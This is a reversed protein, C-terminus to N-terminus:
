ESINVRKNNKYNLKKTRSPWFVQVSHAIQPSYMCRDCFLEIELGHKSQMDWLRCELSLADIRYTIDPYMMDSCVPFLGSLPAHFSSFNLSFYSSHLKELRQWYPKPDLANSGTEPVLLALIEVFVCGLSFVDSKRNRPENNAVEPACYRKTCSESLGTTTTNQGTADLAIGFDTYIMQGKHVLINQPKVDKHRITHCHIYALGSALCGFARLLVARQEPSPDEGTDQIGLLYSSLDKDSAVPTLLMGLERGCTYSWYIQVVHPHSRLRRLISVENRFAEKFFKSHGSYPRFVKHAFRRRNTPDEVIDVVASAGVGLKGIYRFPLTSGSKLDEHKGNVLIHGSYAASSPTDVQPIALSRHQSQAM